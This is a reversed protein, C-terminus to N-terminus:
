LWEKVTQAKHIKVNNDHFIAMIHRVHKNLFHFAVCEVIVAIIIWDNAILCKGKVKKQGPLTNEFV